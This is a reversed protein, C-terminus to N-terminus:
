GYGFRGKAIVDGNEDIIRIGPAKLRQGNKHIVNSYREGAQGYIALAIFVQSRSVWVDPEIRLPSGVKLTTTKGTRVRIKALDGWPGRSELQWRDGKLERDLRLRTPHYARVPVEKPESDSRVTVKGFLRGQLQLEAGATDIALYGRGQWLHLVIGVNIAVVGVVILIDKKKM